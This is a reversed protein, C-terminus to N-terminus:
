QRRAGRHAPAGIFSDLERSLDRSLGITGVLGGRHARVQTPLEDVRDIVLALDLCELRRAFETQHDDINEGLSQLRPVVIPRKGYRLCSATSGVGAHAIVVRAERVCAEFASTTLFDFTICRNPTIGSPGRQVVVPEDGALTDAAAILRDFPLRFSGVTVFIM